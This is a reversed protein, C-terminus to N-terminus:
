PKLFCYRYGVWEPWAADHRHADILKAGSSEMLNIVDPKPVYHMEMARELPRRSRGFWGPGSPIFHRLLVRAAGRVRKLPLAVRRKGGTVHVKQRTAQSGRQKFWAIHEQVMDLELLYDGGLAPARVHLDLSVEQGPRLDCALPCRGDDNITSRGEGDLWHNGLQFCNRGTAQWTTDSLNRVRASVEFEAGAPVAGTIGQAYIEAKFPNAEGSSPGSPLEFLAVGGPRLVRVFDRMYVFSCAPAMHQLVLNSYVFDFHNSPFLRLDPAANVHYTCKRPFRNYRQGLRTMSPAIDVGHCEEFWNCLAQTVRGVGCGFDLARGRHLTLSLSGLYDMVETAELLGTHFFERRNWAGSRKAPDSLIAWFPDSRGLDDWTRRVTDLKENLRQPM